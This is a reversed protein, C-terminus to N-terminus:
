GAARRFITANPAPQALFPLAPTRRPAPATGPTARAGFERRRPARSAAACQRSQQARSQRSQQSQRRSERAPPPRAQHRAHAVHALDDPRGRAAGRVSSGILLSPCCAHRHDTTRHSLLLLRRGTARPLLLPREARLSALVPPLSARAKAPPLTFLALRALRPAAPPAARSARWVGAAGGRAGPAAAARTRAHPVAAAAPSRMARLLLPWRTGSTALVDSM